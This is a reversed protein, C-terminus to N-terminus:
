FESSLYVLIALQEDGFEEEDNFTTISFVLGKNVKFVYLGKAGTSDVTEVAIAQAIKAGALRSEIAPITFTSNVAKVTTTISRTGEVTVFDGKSEDFVDRTFTESYTKKNGVKVPYDVKISKQQSSYGKYTFSKADESYTDHYSHTPDAEM